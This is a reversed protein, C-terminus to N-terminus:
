QKVLNFNLKTKPTYIVTPTIILDVPIDHSEEPIHEVIQFDYALGVKLGQYDSLFRDYYGSGYGLRYGRKDYAVAPIVVVDIYKKDLEEGEPEKIGAFGKKLQNLNDILIPVISNDNLKVKPLLVRKGLKLLEEIIPITNVENKHPYYLLYSNKSTIFPISFFRDKIKLADKLNDKHTKRLELIEKRIKEKLKVERESPGATM